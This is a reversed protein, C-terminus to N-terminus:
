EAPRKKTAAAGGSERVEIMYAFFNRCKELRLSYVKKEAASIKELRKLLEDSDKVLSRLQETSLSSADFTQSCIRDFEDKWEEATAVGASLVIVCLLHGLRRAAREWMATRM